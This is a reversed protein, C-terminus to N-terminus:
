PAVTILACATILLGWSLTCSTFTGARRIILISVIRAAQFTRLPVGCPASIREQALIAVLFLINYARADPAESIQVPMTHRQISLHRHGSM